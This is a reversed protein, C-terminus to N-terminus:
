KLFVKKNIAYNDILLSVFYVGSQSVDDYNLKQKHKGPSKQGLNERYIMKGSLDMLNVTVSSNTLTEYELNIQKTNENAYANFSNQLLQYDTFGVDAAISISEQGLYIEDGSNGGANDAKVFSYYVTLNGLDTAPADWDFSFSTVGTSASHRIYNRGGSSIISSNTGATFTGAANDSADLITLEFGNKPGSPVSLTITYTQNPYYTNSPESFTYDVVGAASQTSGSHCATCNGEGPAGTRAGPPNATFLLEDVEDAHYTSITGSKDFFSFSGVALLLLSTVILKQQTKKM